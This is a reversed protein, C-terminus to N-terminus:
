EQTPSRFTVVDRRAGLYEEALRLYADRDTGLFRRTRQDFHYTVSASEPGGAAQATFWVPGDTEGM